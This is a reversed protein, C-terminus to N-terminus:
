VPIHCFDNVIRSSHAHHEVLLQKILLLWALPEEKAVVIVNFADVDMGIATKHDRSLLLGSTWVVNGKDTDPIQFCAVLELPQIM